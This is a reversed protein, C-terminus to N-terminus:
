NNRLRNTGPAIIHQNIARQRRTQLMKQHLDTKEQMPPFYICESEGNQTTQTSDDPLLIEDKPSAIIKSQRVSIVNVLCAM